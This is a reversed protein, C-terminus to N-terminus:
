DREAVDPRGTAKNVLIRLEGLPSEVAGRIVDEETFRAMLIERQTVRKYDYVVYLYGDEGEAIDPYSVDDRGDLLLRYPWTAGDDESLLATLNNRGTWKKVASEQSEVEAQSLPRKFDYHNILLQRGSKLRRLDFLSCPGEIDSKQGASWTKGMDYSFSEGVGGFTRCLMRLTGDRGEVVLHEDFQRDPIDAHSYLAITEGQDRSLYLNSFQEHRLEPLVGYGRVGCGDRFLACPFLWDGNSLVTPKHSMMGNAIRRPPSWVLEDADPDECVSCWVGQRGDHWGMSQPWFVWLRELPDIWLVGGGAGCAPDPHEIVAEPSRFTKGGDTSVTLVGFNGAGEEVHGAYISVFLKGKKTIEVHPCSQWRRSDDRYREGTPRTLIQAPQMASDIPM